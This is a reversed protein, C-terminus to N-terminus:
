DFVILRKNGLADAIISRKTEMAVLPELDVAPIWAVRELHAVFPCVDVTFLMSKGAAEVLVCTHSATHGPALIWSVSPTIQIPGDVLRLGGSAEIPFVNEPVYTSRTRENPHTADLWERQQVWYEARPFTPVISEGRRITNGGAHDLHLHT